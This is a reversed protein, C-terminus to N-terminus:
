RQSRLNRQDVSAAVIITSPVQRGNQPLRWPVLGSDAGACVLLLLVFLGWRWGVPLVAQVVAAPLLVLVGTATGGLVLGRNFYTVSRAGRWVSSALM